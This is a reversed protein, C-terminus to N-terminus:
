RNRERHYPVRRARGCELCTTVVMGRDLRVRCSLGPILPSLCGKCFALGEPRPTRTKQGIRLALGVYRRARDGRGARAAEASLGALASMREAAIEEMRRSSIRRKSM